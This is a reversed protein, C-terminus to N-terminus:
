FHFLNSLTPVLSYYALGNLFPFSYANALIVTGGKAKIKSQIQPVEKLNFKYPNPINPFEPKATSSRMGILIDQPPKTLFLEIKRFSVCIRL